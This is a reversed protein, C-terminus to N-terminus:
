VGEKKLRLYLALSLGFWGSGFLYSGLVDSAWHDGLYIRAPGILVIFPVPLALLAKQWVPKGRLHIMGQILLTGWFTMSAVVNGSPFSKGSRPHYIHVLHPSPRPRNVFHKVLLVILESAMYTVTVRVAELRLHVKWFFLALPILLVLLLRPSGGIFNIVLALHVLFPSHKKQFAHTIALDISDVPHKHAWRALPVFLALQCISFLFLFGLFTAWRYWPKCSSLPIRCPNTCFHAM